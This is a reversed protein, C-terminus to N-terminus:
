NLPKHHIVSAYAYIRLTEHTVIRWTKPYTTTPVGHFIAM